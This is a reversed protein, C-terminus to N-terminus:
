EYNYEVPYDSYIQLARGQDRIAEKEYHPDHPVPNSGARPGIIVGELWISPFIILDYLNVILRGIYYGTNGILRLVFALIRLVGAAIIGLVTRSAAIFSELAIPAFALAFPLIFGIIMQGVTPIM